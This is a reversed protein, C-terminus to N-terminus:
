PSPYLERIFANGTGNDPRRNTHKIYITFRSKELEEIVNNLQSNISKLQDIDRQVQKKYNDFGFLGLIKDWVIASIEIKRGDPDVFMVPNNVCYNYPSHAYYKESLPDQVFWRAVKSDYM